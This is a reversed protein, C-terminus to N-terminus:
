VHDHDKLISQSGPRLRMLFFHLIGAIIFGVFWAYTYITDFFDMAPFSDIVKIQHLFGPLNPAIALILAAMASLNFGREYRYAGNKQYLSDVDLETKRVLFYDAVLIGGIPGLLASYGILWTFIYGSSDAMLKWPMM